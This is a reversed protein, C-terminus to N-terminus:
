METNSFEIVGFLAHKSIIVLVFENNSLKPVNVFVCHYEESVSFAAKRM